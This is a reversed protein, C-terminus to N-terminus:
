IVSDSIGIGIGIGGVVLGLGKWYNGGRTRSRGERVGYVEGLDESRLTLKWGFESWMGTATNSDHRTTKWSAVSQVKLWWFGSPRAIGVWGAALCIMDFEEFEKFRKSENVRVRLVSYIRDSEYQKVHNADTGANDTALKTVAIDQPVAHDGSRKRDMRWIRLRDRLDGVSGGSDENSGTM